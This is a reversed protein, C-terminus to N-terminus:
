APDSVRATADLTTTRSALEGFDITRRLRFGLSEYLRIARTNRTNQRV